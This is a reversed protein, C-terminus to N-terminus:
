REDSLGMLYDMSVNYFKALIEASSLPLSLKGTEYRCYMSQNVYIYKCIQEQTLGHELRLERLRLKM